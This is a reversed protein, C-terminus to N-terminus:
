LYWGRRLFDFAFPPLRHRDGVPPPSSSIVWFGILPRWVAFPLLPLLLVIDPVDVEVRERAEEWFINELLRQPGAPLWLPIFLLLDAAFIGFSVVLEGDEEDEDMEEEVEAM